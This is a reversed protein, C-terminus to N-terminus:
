VRLSLLSWKNGHCKRGRLHGNRRTELTVLWQFHQAKNQLTPRDRRLDRTRTGDSGGNRDEHGNGPGGIAHQELGGQSKLIIPHATKRKNGAADILSM